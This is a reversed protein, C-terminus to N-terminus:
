PPRYPGVPQRRDDSGEAIALEMVLLHNGKRHPNVRDPNLVFQSAEDKGIRLLLFAVAVLEPVEGLGPIGIKARRESGPAAASQVVRVRQVIHHKAHGRDIGGGRPTQCPCNKTAGCWPGCKRKSGGDKVWPGPMPEEILPLNNPRVNFARICERPSNEVAQPVVVQLMYEQWGRLRCIWVLHCADTDAEM